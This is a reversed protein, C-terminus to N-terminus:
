NNAATPEEALLVNVVRIVDNGADVAAGRAVDREASAKDLEAQAADRGNRARTQDAKAQEYRTLRDALKAYALGLADPLGDPETPEIVAEATESKKAM